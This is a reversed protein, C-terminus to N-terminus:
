SVLIQRIETKLKMADNWGMEILKSCYEPEFLLFSAIDSTDQLSGLGKLLYRIMPPLYSTKHSAIASIDESPSIWLYNVPHVSIMRRERDSLKEINANIRDIREFDIEFGDTMLAHLLVNAVRGMTPPSRDDVLRSTYCPEQKRRVGIAIIKRAGMNIMPSCPSLNRISGDGFHRNDITIPPFLVPISASGLVHDATIKTHESRRRFRQWSPLPEKGQIFTITSTSFYDLASVAVARFRDNDINTQINAFNCNASILTKLPKTDLLASRPTSKKMGGLSLEAVLKIGKYTLSVPDTVYVQNADVVSWLENLRKSGLSIDCSPAAALMAINIAGASIGSFFEFPQKEKMESSIDVIAAIAGAQYAARAGGGSLVLGLPM